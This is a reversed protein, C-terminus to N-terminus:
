MLAVSRRSEEIEKQWDQEWAPNEKAAVVCDSCRIYFVSDRAGFRCLVFAPITDGVLEVDDLSICDICYAFPCTQCRLLLGGAATTNRQCHRCVHQGCVLATAKKVAAGSLTPHCNRHFVRPCCNCMFLEGGDRCNICWDESDFKSGAEKKGVAPEATGNVTEITADDLVFSMGGFTVLKSTHQRKAAMEVPQGQMEKTRSLLSGEFLYSQVRAVGSLLEREEDEVGQLLGEEEEELEMKLDKKVRADSVQARVHSAEIIEEVTAERFRELDMGDDTRTLASSGRRLISLLESGGPGRKSDDDGLEGGMIKAALFMKRRLRDLMQDEVSARCILRYVKVVKTQGIRHCRAIAQLDSQPNWDSDCMICVTAKTLNIGLGGAKTSILFVKFQSGERQFLDIVLSRKARPTSGDLRLYQISLDAPFPRHESSVYETWQSFILAREDNAFARKLIKDIFILKSSAAVIHERIDYTEPMADSLMYPHDCIRRLQMLLISFKKWQNVQSGKARERLDHLVQSRGEDPINEKMAPFLTTLDIQDLRTLLRYTWFRQAETFPLFVTHEERPPVGALEGTNTLSGKTRRLQIIELLRRVADIFPLAYKGHQLDFSDIFRQRTTITFVTPYLWHLLGWLELLNNQIPTGTLILRWMSGIGSVSAAVETESNKIRHGEDLVVCAWGQTKLWKMESSCATEYTTIVIDAPDTRLLVRRRQREESSGHILVANMSPVWRKCESEWSAVVSLPCIILHTLLTASSQKIHAFLSLTQLTKGLGMRSMEWFVISAGNEYMHALFSLGRLQYAKMQGGEVPVPQTDFQRIQPAVVRKSGMEQQRKSFYSQAHPNPPLLPLYEDRHSYFWVRRREEREERIEQKVKKHSDKSGDEAVERKRKPAESTDSPWGTCSASDSTALINPKLDADQACNM